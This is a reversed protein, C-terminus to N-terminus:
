VSPIDNFGSKFLDTIANIAEIEDPGNAQMILEDNNVIALMMVGIISKASSAEGGKELTIDSEFKEAIKVIRLCCRAYLKLDSIVHVTTKVMKDDEVSGNSERELSNM